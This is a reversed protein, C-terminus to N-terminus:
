PAEVKSRSPANEFNWQHVLHDVVAQGIELAVAGGRTSANRRPRNRLSINGIKRGLILLLAEGSRISNRPCPEVQVSLSPISPLWAKAQDVVCPTATITSTQGSTGLMPKASDLLARVELEGPAGFCLSHSCIRGDRVDIMALLWAVKINGDGRLHLEIASADLVFACDYPLRSRLGQIDHRRRLRSLVAYELPVQLGQEASIRRAENIVRMPRAGPGSRTIAETVVAETRPDIPMGRGRVRRAVTLQAIREKRRKILRYFMRRSISLNEAFADLQSVPAARISLYNSVADHRRIMEAWISPPAVALDEALIPDIM